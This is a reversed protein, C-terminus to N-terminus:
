DGRLSSELPRTLWLRHGPTGGEATPPEGLQVRPEMSAWAM